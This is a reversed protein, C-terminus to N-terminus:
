RRAKGASKKKATKKGTTKKRTTKKGATKAVAKRAKNAAKKVTRTLGGMSDKMRKALSKKAM